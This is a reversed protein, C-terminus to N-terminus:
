SSKVERGMEVTLSVTWSVSDLHINSGVGELWLARTGHAGRAWGRGHLHSAPYETYCFSSPKKRWEKTGHKPCTDKRELAVLHRESWFLKTQLWLGM